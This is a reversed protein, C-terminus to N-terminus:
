RSPFEALRCTSYAAARHASRLPLCLDRAAACGPLLHPASVPM